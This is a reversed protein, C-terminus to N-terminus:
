MLRVDLSQKFGGGSQSPEPRPARPPIFRPKGMNTRTNSECCAASPPYLWLQHSHVLVKHLSGQSAPSCEQVKNEYKIRAQQGPHWRAKNREAEAAREGSPFPKHGEFLWEMKQPESLEWRGPLQSTHVPFAVSLM